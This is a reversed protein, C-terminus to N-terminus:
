NSLLNYNNIPIRTCKMVAQLGKNIFNKCTSIFIVIACQKLCYDAHNDITIDQSKKSM